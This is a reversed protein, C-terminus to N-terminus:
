KDVDSPWEMIESNIFKWNPNEKEVLSNKKVRTWGKIEKERKIADMAGPYVEYYLLNYCNYRGTFTKLNGRNFYHETLRRSLNNTMGTYLVTKSNNTLIYVFFRKIKM